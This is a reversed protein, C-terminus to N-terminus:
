LMDETVRVKGTVVSSFISERYEKILDIKKSEFRVLTNIKKLERDLLEVIKEQEKIEPFIMKFNLIDEINLSAQNATGHSHVDLHSRFQRGFLTYFLFKRTIFKKKLRLLVTNQNLLSGNLEEPVIALQGVASDVITYKSGVSSIVIDGKKLIVKQYSDLNKPDLFINPNKITGQKIDSARVIPIGEDCFVKSKFAFGKTYSLFYKLPKIEWHKPIQSIWETGSEKIEVNSNLGKTVVENILSIKKEILLEIKKQTKKILSNIISIKNDLFSVIQHQEHIPPLFIPTKKLRDQRLNIRTFGNGEISILKKHVHGLLQLNLFLPYVDTNTIRFGKCFSNLYLEKVDDVLISSKGLDNFDESSMLFFLDFKRVKNQKEDDRVVVHQFHNKSIKINNFINTFPIYLKNMPNDESQFDVGSKGTLGGYFFGLRSLPVKKWHSPIKNIWEIGTEQYEKYKNLLFRKPYNCLRTM